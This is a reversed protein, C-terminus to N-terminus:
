EEGADTADADGAGSDPQGLDIPPEMDQGGDSMIDSESFWIPAVWFEECEPSWRLTSSKPVIRLGSTINITASCESGDPGTM